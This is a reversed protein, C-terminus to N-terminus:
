CKPGFHKRHNVLNIPVVKSQGLGLSLAKRTGVPCRLAFMALPPPSAAVACVRLAAHRLRFGPSALTFTCPQGGVDAIPPVAPTTEGETTTYSAEGWHWPHIRLDADRMIAGRHFRVLAPRRSHSRSEPSLPNLRQRRRTRAGVGRGDRDGGGAMFEKVMTDWDSLPRHGFVVAAHADGTAKSLQAWKSSYTESRLGNSPDAISKALAGGGPYYLVVPAAAIHKIPVNTPNETKGLETKVIGGDARALSTCAKSGMIQWNMNRPVSRPRWGTSCACCCRSGIPPRRRSCSMASAAPARGHRPPKVTRCPLRM